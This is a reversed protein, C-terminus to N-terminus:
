DVVLNDAAETGLAVEFRTRQQVVRFSDGERREPTHLCHEVVFNDVAESLWRSEVGEARTEAFRLGM